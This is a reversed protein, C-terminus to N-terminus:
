TRVHEFYGGEAVTSEGCRRGVSCFVRQITALPIDNNAHEIKDRM